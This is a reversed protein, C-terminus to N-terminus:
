CMIPWETGYITSMTNSPSRAGRGLVPAASWNQGMDITALCSSPSLHWKTCLYAEAWSVNHEIHVLKEGILPVCCGGWKRGMDITALFDGMEAVSM